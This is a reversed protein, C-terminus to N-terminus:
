LGYDELTAEELSIAKFDAPGTPSEHFWFFLLRRVANVDLNFWFGLEEDDCGHVVLEGKYNMRIKIDETLAIEERSMMPNEKKTSM